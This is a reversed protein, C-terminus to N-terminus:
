DQLGVNENQQGRHIQSPCDRFLVLATEFKLNRTEFGRGSALPLSVFSSVQFGFGPKEAMLTLADARSSTLWGSAADSVLFFM